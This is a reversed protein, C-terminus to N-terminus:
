QAAANNASEPGAVGAIAGQGFKEPTRSLRKETVYSAFSAILAGGGPLLGLFFGLVTGRAIPGASERWDQRNPLLDRLRQGYPLLATHGGSQEALMLVESIGFLGMAVVAIGFGDRLYPTGFTFREEGSVLDTGVTSILLGAAIMAFARPRSGAGVSAV